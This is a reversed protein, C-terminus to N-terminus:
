VEGRTLSFTWLDNQTVPPGLLKELASIQFILFDHVLKAYDYIEYTLLTFGTQM